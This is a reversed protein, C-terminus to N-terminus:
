LITKRRAIVPLLKLRVFQFQNGRESLLQEHLRANEETLRRNEDHIYMVQNWAHFPEQLMGTIETGWKGAEYQLNINERYTLLLSFGLLLLYLWLRINKVFFEIFATM